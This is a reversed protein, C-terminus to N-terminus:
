PNVSESKREHYGAWGATRPQPFDKAVSKPLKAIAAEYWWQTLTMGAARAAQEVIEKAPSPLKFSFTDKSEAM